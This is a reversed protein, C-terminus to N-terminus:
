LYFVTAAGATGLISIIPLSVGFTVGVNGSGYICGINFSWLGWYPLDHGFAFKLSTHAMFGNHDFDGYGFGQYIQFDFPIHDPTLRFVPGIMVDWGGDFGIMFDTGIGLHGPIYNLQAGMMWQSSTFEHGAQLETYIRPFDDELAMAALTLARIPMLSISATPIYRGEYYRAGLSFSWWSFKHDKYGERFGFRLAADAVWTIHKDTFRYMAGGGLALQLSLPCDFSTLRFTPGITASLEQNTIGYLATVDLGFRKPIWGYRVGAYHHRDYGAFEIGYMPELYHDPHRDSGYYWESKLKFDVSETGKYTITPRQTGPVLRGKKYVSVQHEGIQFEGRYPTTGVHTGDVYVKANKPRSNVILRGTKPLMPPLTIHTAPHVITITDYRDEWRTCTRKIFHKGVPLSKTSWEGTARYTYDASVSSKSYIKEDTNSGKLHLSGQHIYNYAKQSGGLLSLYGNHEYDDSLKQLRAEAKARQSANGSEIVDLYWEAAIDGFGEEECYLGAEYTADMHGKHSAKAFWNYAEKRDKSIGDGTKYCMGLEYQAEVQDKDAAKRYWDAAMRKNKSTGNGTAYCKGTMYMADKNDHYAADLFWSYATSYNRTKGCTGNYYCMGLEYSAAYLTLTNSYDLYWNYKEDDDDDDEEDDSSDQTKADEIAKLIEYKEKAKRLWHVARDFDKEVGTGSYYAEGLYHQANTHGQEAAKRYWKVAQYDSKTTGNGYDYCKGLEYQAKAYGQEASKEFYGFATYENKTVGDGTSYCQALNCQAVKSGKDAAQQYLEVAKYVNKSVGRGTKYLVGLNNLAAENGQNAAKQYWYVAMKYDKAVGHGDAYAMGLMGQASAYGQDASKRFWTIAQAYDQRVGGEGNYYCIGINFQAIKNGQKARSIYENYSDDAFCIGAVFILLLIALLRKMLATNKLTNALELAFTRSKKSIRLFFWLNEEKGGSTM